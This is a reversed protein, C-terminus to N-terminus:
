EVIENKEFDYGIIDSAYDGWFFASKYEEESGSPVYITRGSANNDFAKWYWQNSRAIAPPTKAKCYVRSLLRCNMFANDGITMISEPITVSTLSKCHLFASIDITTVSSPITIEALNECRCFAEIGITTVRDSLAVSKLSKCDYFADKGIKDIDADFRMVWCKKHSDYLNSIINASFASSNYPTTAETTSGNTYWIENAPPTTCLKSEKDIIATEEGWARHNVAVGCMELARHTTGLCLEEISQPRFYFSPSAPVIIAGAETLTTMNRLHILSYPSERVVLVLRRREKLMVDAAREILTRSIGSAIRGAIGMSAPIILMADWRASGSALSSWMDDNAYRTIREHHPLEIGEAEIVSEANDSLVLAIQEIVPHSTLIELAQRAYIAGSAGTIAVIINM